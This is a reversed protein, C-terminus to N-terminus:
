DKDTKSNWTHKTTKNGEGLLNHRRQQKDTQKDALL